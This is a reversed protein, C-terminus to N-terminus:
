TVDWDEPFSPLEWTPDPSFARWDRWWADGREIEEIVDEGARRVAAAKDPTYLGMEVCLELEHEDKWMWSRLDEGVIIDLAQDQTDFGNHHLQMPEQLNVYWSVFNGTEHWFGLIAYPDDPRVLILVNNTNWVKEGIPVKGSFFDTYATERNEFLAGHYRTGVPLYAALLADTHAVVTLPRAFLITGGFIGREVITQGRAFRV